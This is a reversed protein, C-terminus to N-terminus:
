LDSELKRSNKLLCKLKIMDENFLLYNVLLNVITVVLLVLFGYVFFLVYSDIVPLVNKIAIVIGISIVLNVLFKKIFDNLNNKFIKIHAYSIELYASVINSIILAALIGYIGFLYGFIILFIILTICTIIQFNRATKFNGSINIMNGSPVHIVEVFLMIALMISITNNTYNIDTVNKTYLSIFPVIVILVSSLLISALLIIIYEYTKFKEYTYKTNFSSLLQGFGNIPAQLISTLLMNIINYISYYVAYVSSMKTSIFTSIFLVPASTYIVYTIKQILLDKSSKEFSYDPKVNTNINSFYKKYLLIIMIGNIISYVLISLRILLVNAKLLILLITTISSLLNIIIEYFTYIYENQSVKFMTQAKLVFLLNFSSALIAMFFILFITLYDLNSKIFFPYILALFTGFLLFVSGIKYFKKQCASMISNIKKENKELYPKFLSVNIAFSINGEFLLLLNILQYATAVVGNFDSGYNKLILSTSILSFLSILITKFIMTAANLLSSKLRSENM